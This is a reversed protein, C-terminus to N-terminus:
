KFTKFQNEYDDQVKKVRDKFSENILNDPIRIFEIEINNFIAKLSYLATSYFSAIKYPKITNKLLFLEVITDHNITVINLKQALPDLINLDEFRHPVYYINLEPESARLKIFYNELLMLYSTSDVIVQANVVNSGIFIVNRSKNDVLISTRNLKSFNGKVYALENKTVNSGVLDFISFWHIDVNKMTKLNGILNGVICKVRDKMSNIVTLVSSGNYKDFLNITAAGDDISFLIKYNLNCIYLKNFFEELHGVFLRNINIKQLKNLLIVKNFFMKIPNEKKIVILEYDCEFEALVNKLLLNQKDNNNEFLVLINHENKCFKYMAELSNLLQFPSAVLFVNLLM